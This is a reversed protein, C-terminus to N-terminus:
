FKPPCYDKEGAKIQTRIKDLVAAVMHYGKPNEVEEGQLKLQVDKIEIRWIQVASTVLM